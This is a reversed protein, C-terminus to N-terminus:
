LGLLQKKKADFEEQTLIGADVLEKYQKLLEITQTEDKSKSVDKAPTSQQKEQVQKPKNQKQTKPKSNQKKGYKNWYNGNKLCLVKDLDVDDYVVFWYENNQNDKVYVAKGTPSIDSTGRTIVLSDIDYEKVKM